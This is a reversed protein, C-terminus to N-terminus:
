PSELGPQIALVVGHRVRVGASMGIFENSLGRTSGVALTDDRLEWRLGTTSVGEAPGGVAFLSVLEGVVGTM